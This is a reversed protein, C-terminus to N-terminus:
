AGCNNSLGQNRLDAVPAPPQCQGRERPRCSAAPPWASTQMWTAEGAPDPLSRAQCSGRVSAKGAQAPAVQSRARGCRRPWVQMGAARLCVGGEPPHYRWAAIKEGFGGSQRGSNAGRSQKFLGCATRQSTSLAPSGRPGRQERRDNKIRDMGGLAKRCQEVSDGMPVRPRGAWWSEDRQQAPNQNTHAAGPHECGGESLPPRPRPPQQSCGGARRSTSGCM